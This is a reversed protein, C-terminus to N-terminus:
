GGGGTVILLYCVLAIMIAGMLAEMMSEIRM